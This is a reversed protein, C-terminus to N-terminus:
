NTCKFKSQIVNKQISRPVSCVDLFTCGGYSSCTAVPGMPFRETYLYKLWIGVTTTVSLILEEFDEETRSTFQRAYEQKTKAVQLANIMFTETQIGFCRQAAMVYGTYQSNPKLRNFFEVGLAATTKHDAIFITGTEENILGADITGFFEIQIQTDEYIIFSFKREIFPGLSDTYIKLGDNAYHKAYGKLIKIGNHVSRKDTEELTINKEQMKLISRRISELAGEQPEELEHYQSYANLLNKTKTDESLLRLEKPLTYWHEM